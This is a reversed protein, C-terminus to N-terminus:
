NNVFENPIQMHAQMPQLSNQPNQIVQGAVSPAPPAYAYIADPSPEFPMYVRNNTQPNGPYVNIPIVVEKSKDGYWTDYKASMTIFYTTVIKIRNVM